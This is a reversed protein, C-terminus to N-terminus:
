EDDEEKDLTGYVKNFLFEIDDRDYGLEEYKKMEEDTFEVKKCM